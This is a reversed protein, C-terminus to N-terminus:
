RTTRAMQISFGFNRSSFILLNCIARLNYKIILAQSLFHLLCVQDGHHSHHMALVRRILRSTPEERFKLVFTRFARPFM